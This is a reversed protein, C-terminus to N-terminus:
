GGKEGDLAQGCWCDAWAPRQRCLLLCGATDPMAGDFAGHGPLDLAEAVLPAKGRPPPSLQRGM